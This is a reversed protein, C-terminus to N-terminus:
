ALAAYRDRDGGSGGNTDVASGSGPADGQPDGAAAAATQLDVAEKELNKFLPEEEDLLNSQPPPHKRNYIGSSTQPPNRLTSSSASQSGTLSPVKSPVAPLTALLNKDESDSDGGGDYMLAAFEEELDEESIGDIAMTNISGTVNASSIIRNVEAAAEVQGEVESVVREVEDLGGKVGMRRLADGSAKLTELISRNLETGEITNMHMDIISM